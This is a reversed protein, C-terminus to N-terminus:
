FVGADYNSTPVLFTGGDLIEGPPNNTALDYFQNLTLQAYAQYTEGQNYNYALLMKWLKDSTSSFVIAPDTIHIGSVRMGFGPAAIWSAPLSLDASLLASFTRLEWIGGSLYGPVALLASRDPVYILEPNGTDAIVPAASLHTNFNPGDALTSYSYGMNFDSTSSKAEILLHLTSGVVAIAPNFIEYYWDAPTASHTLVPNGSNLISWTIKDSSSYLYLNGDSILYALLYYASGIKFVYPFRIDGTTPFPTGGSVWTECMQDTAYMYYIAQPAGGIWWLDCTSGNMLLCTEGAGIGVFPNNASQTLVGSAIFTGGDFGGAAAGMNPSLFLDLKM